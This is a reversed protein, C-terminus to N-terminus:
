PPRINGGKGGTREAQRVPARSAERANATSGSPAQEPLWFSFRIDSLRKRMM